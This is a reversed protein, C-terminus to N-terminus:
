WIVGFQTMCVLLGVGAAVARDQSWQTALVPWQSLAETTLRYEYFGYLTLGSGWTAM